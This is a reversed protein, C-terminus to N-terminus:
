YCMKVENSAVRERFVQSNIEINKHVYSFIFENYQYGAGMKDCQLKMPLSKRRLQPTLNKLNVFEM